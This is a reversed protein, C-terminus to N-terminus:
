ENIIGKPLEDKETTKKFMKNAAVHYIVIGEPNMFGPAAVSGYLKLADLISQIDRTDFMGTYLVPVVSVCSPINNKNWETTNFLSFRKETLGYRRQIGAGWWEGFHIGDGLKVLESEHETVWKAFGYNDKELTIFRNRSGISEIKGDKVTFQSNTGDIKETIICDRSLRPIKPFGTFYSM